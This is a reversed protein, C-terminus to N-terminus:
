VSQLQQVNAHHARHVDTVGHVRRVRNMISNLHDIGTIEVVMNVVAMHDKTTRANVASINARLETIASMINSLLAVRDHAEIELEVPYSNDEGFEWEVEINREPSSRLWAINPCDRRHVSIGKGRTIYGIIEDGPVPNCCRAMRVLVNDVGKVRVGQGSPRKRRPVLQTPEKEEKELALREPALRAVVMAPSVKGDGVSALLDEPDTFGLRKAAVLLKDEKLNDHVELGQRRLEKEILDRGRPVAEERRVERVWQRIKNRAKSTKVFALWDLSPAGPGKSTIIEVIDGNTLQYDLPVMRGNVRAGICRHGIDTHVSYAFDVPTSGAPLNKVDGKPTFVFVEDKFLDIKLTEMFDHVDKMDRQWELLQRLWSLKEEFESVTRTGEKYRWHAAIGYEATRHMDWTRIQIELPEGAPGIVTTHLSQYMNSKPMAIYDKFRGPMPKWLSHVIGLVAYCDRVSNVIVRIAILDYIEEFAKGKLRMKEYISYFHKARGQLECPIHAEDLTKKLVARAQEILGEREKRKRAVKEVLKYYEGPELYRLALDELEWKVRWMGLRHALPAYIELTERAIRAQRDWPLHGLTRMNHLRDALKILVVRIDQAMALFMKRLNEAQQEERSMFPLRGLKTVGDVLVSVERGFEATIQDLTVPTDEIVDHLLGAAITTVDMELEALIAAVGLPHFIFSDGSDRRQGAHAQAAFEYAKRVGDLDAEPAYRRIRELVEDIGQEM